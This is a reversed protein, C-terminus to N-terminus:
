PNFNGRVVGLAAGVGHQNSDSCLFPRGYVIQLLRWSMDGSLKRCASSSLSM